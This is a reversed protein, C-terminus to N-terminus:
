RKKLERRIIHYFGILSLILFFTQGILYGALEFARRALHQILDFYSDPSPLHSPLM